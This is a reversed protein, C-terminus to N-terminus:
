ATSRLGSTRVMSPRDSDIITWSDEDELLYLNIHNLSLPMPMRLWFVGDTVKVIEGPEPTTKFPYHLQNIPSFTKMIQM